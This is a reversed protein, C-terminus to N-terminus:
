APIAIPTGKYGRLSPDHAAYVLGHVKRMSASRATIGLGTATAPRILAALPAAVGLRAANAACTDCPCSIRITYYDDTSMYICYRM